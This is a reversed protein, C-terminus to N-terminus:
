KCNCRALPTAARTHPTPQVLTLETCLFVLRLHWRELRARTNPQVYSPTMRGRRRKRRTNIARGRRRHIRTHRGRRPRSGKQIVKNARRLISLQQLLSYPLRPRRRVKGPLLLRQPLQGSVLLGRRVRVLLPQSRLLLPSFFSLPFVSSPVLFTSHNFSSYLSPFLLNGNGATSFLFFLVL